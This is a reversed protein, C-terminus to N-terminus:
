GRCRRSVHCVNHGGTPRHAVMGEHLCAVQECPPSTQDVGRGTRATDNGRHAAPSSAGNGPNRVTGAQRMGAGTVARGASRRHSRDVATALAAHSAPRSAGQEAPTGCPVSPARAWPPSVRCRAGDSSTVQWASSSDHWSCRRSCAARPGGLRAHQLLNPDRRNHRNSATTRLPWVMRTPPGGPM